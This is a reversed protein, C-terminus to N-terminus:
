TAFSWGSRRQGMVFGSGGTDILYGLGGIHVLPRGAIRAFLSSGTGAIMSCGDAIGITGSILHTGDDAIRLSRAPVRPRLYNYLYDGLHYVGAIGGYIAEIIGPARATVRRIAEFIRRESMETGIDLANAGPSVDRALVNGLEDFLVTDTKTGGSDIGIMLAM